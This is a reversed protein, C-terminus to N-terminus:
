PARGFASRLDDIAPVVSLAMLFLALPVTAVYGVRAFGVAGIVGGTFFAVLISSLVLLRGRNAVVRPMDDRGAGNWYVLKGLEIGIDTVLGTVHTTRIEARSLKTIVANQLGMIFSLLMVTRRSSFRTSSQSVRESHGSHSCSFRRSCCPAPMNSACGTAGPITSSSPPAHPAPLFFSALAGIGGLVVEYVGVALNDAMSSVIGTMHSTYQHVAVFGGANTAGAVFALAIGLHRDATVSRQSATLRRAYNIPM